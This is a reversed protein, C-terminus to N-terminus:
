ITIYLLALFAHCRALFCSGDLWTDHKKAPITNDGINMQNIDKQRDVQDFDSKVERGSIMM